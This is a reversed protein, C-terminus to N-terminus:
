VPNRARKGGNQEKVFPSEAVSPNGDERIQENPKCVNINRRTLTKGTIGTDFSPALPM